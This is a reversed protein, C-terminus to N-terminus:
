VMEFAEPEAAGSRMRLRSIVFQCLVVSGSMVIVGLAFAMITELPYRGVSTGSYIAVLWLLGIIVGCPIARLLFEKAQPVIIQVGEAAVSQAQISSAPM